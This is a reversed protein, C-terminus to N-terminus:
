PKLALREFQYRYTTAVTQTKVVPLHRHGAPMEKNDNYGLTSHNDLARLWIRVSRVGNRIYPVIGVDDRFRVSCGPVNFPVSYRSSLM